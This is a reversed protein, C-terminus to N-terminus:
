QIKLEIPNVIDIEYSYFLLIVIHCSVKECVIYLCMPQFGLKTLDYCKDGEVEHYKGSCDGNQYFWVGNENDTILATKKDNSYPLVNTGCKTYTHSAGPGVCKSQPGVKVTTMASVAAVFAFFTIFKM